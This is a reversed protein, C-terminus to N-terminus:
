ISLNTFLSFDVTPSVAFKKANAAYAREDRDFVSAFKELSFCAPICIRPDLYLKRPLNGGTDQAAIEINETKLYQLAFNVNSIGIHSMASLVNAGGFIWAKLRRRNAGVQMMQNILLEMANVGYRASPNLVDFRQSDPNNATTNPLMFHNMGAIKAQMDTLCVTVCSGLVTMMLSPVSPDASTQDSTRECDQALALYEGPLVRRVTRKHVRDFFVHRSSSQSGQVGAYFM